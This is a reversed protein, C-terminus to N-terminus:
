RAREAPQAGDVVDGHVCRSTFHEPQHTGVARSLRRQEVDQGAVQTRRVAAHLEVAAVDRAQRGETPGPETKSARVLLGPQEGVEGDELRDGDRELTVM